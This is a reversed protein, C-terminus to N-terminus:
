NNLVSTPYTRENQPFFTFKFRIFNQDLFTYTLRLSCYLISSLVKHSIGTEQVTLVICHLLSKHATCTTLILSVLITYLIKTPPGKLSSGSKLDLFVYFSSM